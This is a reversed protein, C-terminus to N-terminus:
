VREIPPDASGARRTISRSDPRGGQYGAPGQPRSACSCSVMVVHGSRGPSLAFAVTGGPGQISSERGRRGPRRRDWKASSATRSRGPRPSDQGPPVDTGVLITAKRAPARRATRRVRARSTTSTRPALAAGGVDLPDGGVM